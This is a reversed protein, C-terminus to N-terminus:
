DSEGAFRWRESKILSCLYSIEEIIQQKMYNKECFNHIHMFKGYKPKKSETFM